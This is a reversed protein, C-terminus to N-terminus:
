SWDGLCALAEWCFFGKEKENRRLKLLAFNDPICHCAHSFHKLWFKRFVYLLGVCDVALLSAKLKLLKLRAVHIPASGLATCFSTHKLVLLTVLEAELKNWSGVNHYKLLVPSSLGDQFDM